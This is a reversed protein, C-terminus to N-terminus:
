KDCSARGTKTGCLPRKETLHKGNKYVDCRAHRTDLIHKLRQYSLGNSADLEYAGAIQKDSDDSDIIKAKSMTTVDQASGIRSDESSEEYYVEQLNMMNSQGNSIRNNDPIRDMTAM